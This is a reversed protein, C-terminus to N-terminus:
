RFLSKLEELKEKAAEARDLRGKGISLEALDTKKKQLVLMREEISGEMVYRTCTVARTQGLRHVRDVAQAEAAPNYQPEMVYVRSASTLNLGLGGAGISVLIVLVSPDDRFADLALKRKPRTMKGDLRVAQLNNDELAIQILDLHTTWGSFVVSKIPPEHPNATSEAKTDMLASILASTKSHPGMYRGMMKAQKPNERARAKAEEAKDIGSQTLQFFSLKLIEDCFPCKFRTGRTRKEINKKAQTDCDNCILQYCPLMTGIVSDKEEDIEKPTVKRACQACIDTNTEQFLGLMEYAQRDNIAPKTDEDDVDIANNSSLGEVMKLDEENLLEKGHASILRLCMISRLIHHYGKGALKNQKTTSMARVRNGADKAFWDYLEQEDKSFRLRVIEDHREPLNIKDKLRRLTLSGVLLRLKPLIEPDANKFPALIYQAFGTDFPKVRLFKVLAGLDDLRNQIPTGTVAWKRSSELSCIAQSVLTLQERIMHAEDLVVRFFNMNLFPSSVTPKGKRRYLESSVISYTTIIVDKTSLIDMDHCRSGGHYVYYSFAEPRIHSALQEEWNSIVSLPCVLLTTKVNRMEVGNENLVKQSTEAWDVANELTSSILSLISLTKGLGMMDALIGGLVPEPVNRQEHGSLVHYYVKQGNPKFESKWLCNNSSGDVDDNDADFNPAKERASMFYLAQKQHQLLPTMIRSDPEMEPLSESKQLSDFLGLMDSRMEETSRTSYGLSSSQRGTSARPKGLKAAVQPNFYRNQADPTGPTRLWLNKQSLHKGIAEGHKRQGYIVLSLALRDSSHLGPMDFPKRVRPNVRVDTRIKFVQSDMLPVLGMATRADLNGFDNGEADRVVIILHKRGPLRQLTCKIAPWFNKSTGVKKRDPSPVKFAVVMAGELLGFCVMTEGEDRKVEKSDVIAIDENDEGEFIDACM